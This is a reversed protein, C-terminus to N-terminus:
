QSAWIIRALWDVDATSMSLDAYDPNVSSLEITTASKRKLEKVMMEGRTTRVVVRDGRRVPESPTVIVIDGDRYLPTMSDGSVEIAYVDESGVDPFPIAEWDGGAPHGDPDFYGDRGAKALAVLPIARTPRVSITGVLDIFQDISEGTADLVKALSETSPWRERGDRSRRKSKNFTTPDLGAQRALGSVSLNQRDALADIAEWISRHTLM